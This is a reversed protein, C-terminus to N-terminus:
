EELRGHRAEMILAQTLRRQIREWAEHARKATCELNPCVKAPKFGHECGNAWLHITIEFADDLANMDADNIIRLSM